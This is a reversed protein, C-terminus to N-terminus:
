ASSVTLSRRMRIVAPETDASARNFSEREATPLTM